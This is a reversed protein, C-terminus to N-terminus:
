KIKENNVEECIIGVLVKFEYFIEKANEIEQLRVWKIDKYDELFADGNINDCNDIYFKMADYFYWIDILDSNYKNEIKKKGCIHNINFDLVSSINTHRLSLKNKDINNKNM